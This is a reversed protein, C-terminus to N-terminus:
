SVVRVEGELHALAFLKATGACMAQGPEWLDQATIGTREFFSEFPANFLMGHPGSAPDLGAASLTDHIGLTM